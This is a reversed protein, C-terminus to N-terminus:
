VTAQCPTNRVSSISRLSPRLAAARVQRQSQVARCCARVDCHAELLHASHILAPQLKNPVDLGRSLDDTVLPKRQQYVADRMCLRDVVGRMAM